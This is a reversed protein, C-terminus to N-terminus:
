KSWSRKLFRRPSRSCPGPRPLLRDRGVPSECSISSPPRPPRHRNRKGAVPWGELAPDVRFTRCWSGRRAPGQRRRKRGEGAPDSMATAGGLRQPLPVPRGATTGPLVDASPRSPSRSVTPCRGYGPRSTRPRWYLPRREDPPRLHVCSGVDRLVVGVGPVRLRGVSRFGPGVELVIASPLLGSPQDFSMWPAAPRPGIPSLGDRGIVNRWGARDLVAEGPPCTSTSFRAGL